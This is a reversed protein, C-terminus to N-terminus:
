KEGPVNSNGVDILMQIARATALAEWSLLKGSNDTISATNLSEFPSLTAVLNMINIAPEMASTPLYIFVILREVTNGKQISALALRKNSEGRFIKM